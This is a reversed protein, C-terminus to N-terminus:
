CRDAHRHPVQIAPALGVGRFQCRYSGRAETERCSEVLVRYEGKCAVLTLSLTAGAELEAESEFSGGWEQSGSVAGRARPASRISLCCTGEHGDITARCYHIV